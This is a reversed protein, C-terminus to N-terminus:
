PPTIRVEDELTAEEQSLQQKLKQYEAMVERAKERDGLRQYARGLQFHLSGDEDAPLAAQLHPIAKEAENLHMYARGLSSQSGLSDPNLKVSKELFPVAQEVKQEYLLIDGALFNLQADEPVEKLLAQVETMAEDYSRNLYLSVALERRLKPNGPHVKLAAQWEKVSEWHRGQNRHIEARLEHIGVSDPLKMLAGFSALALQNAAQVRWYLAEPSSEAEAARLLEVLKGELFLCVFKETECDPPGLEGERREEVEAWDAHDTNRYIRSIAYHIGRFTPKKELAKKYFFFASSNQQQAVRSDAILAFWYASEHATEALEEFWGTALGEYIRGLGYWIRPNEPTKARLANLLPLAEEYLETAIMADALMQMGNTDDPNQERYKKLATVARKFDGTELRSAGLFMWAVALAPEAEVASELPPIARELDGNLYYAMGLNMKLGALHPLARALDDYLRIAEPFDGKGLAEKARDSKDRLEADPQAFGTPHLTPLLVLFLFTALITRFLTMM